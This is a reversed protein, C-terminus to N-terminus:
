SAGRARGTLAKAVKELPIVRCACVGDREMLAEETLGVSAVQPNTFVAHPVSSYDITENSGTLANTAAVYGQKAAVTELPMTGTCDGAAFISGNSTRLEPDVQVFGASTVEVKAKALNLGATRATVGTAVLLEEGRLTIEDSGVGASIVVGGNERTVERARVRPYIAIGEEALYRHIEHSVEPEEMPLIRDMMEM